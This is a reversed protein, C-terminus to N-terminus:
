HAFSAGRLLSSRFFTLEQVSNINSSLRAIDDVVLRLAQKRTPMVM